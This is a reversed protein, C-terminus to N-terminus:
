AKGGDHVPCEPHEETLYGCLCTKPIEAAKPTQPPATDCPGTVQHCWAQIAGLHPHAALPGGIQGVLDHIKNLADTMGAVQLNVKAREEVLELVMIPFAGGLGHRKADAARDKMEAIDSDTM